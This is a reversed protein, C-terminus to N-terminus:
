QLQRRRQCCSAIYLCGYKGKQLPEEFAPFPYDFLTVQDSHGYVFLQALNNRRARASFRIWRGFVQDRVQLPTALARISSISGPEINLPKIGLGNIEVVGSSLRWPSTDSDYIM